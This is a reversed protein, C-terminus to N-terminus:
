ERSKREVYQPDKTRGTWYVFFLFMNYFYFVWLLGLVISSLSGYILNYRVLNRLMIKKFLFKGLQLTLAFLGAGSVVRRWPIRQTPLIFMMLCFILFGIILFGGRASISGLFTPPLGFFTMFSSVLELIFPTFLVFVMGFLWIFFFLRTLFFNRRKDIHLIRNIIKEMNVYLIQASVLLSALGFWTFGNRKQLLSQLNTMILESHLPLMEELLRTLSALTQQPPLVYNSVAILLLIMPFISIITYYSLSAAKNYLELRRVAHYYFHLDHGLAIIQSKFRLM